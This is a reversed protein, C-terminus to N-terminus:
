HPWRGGGAGSKRSASFRVPNEWMLKRMRDEGLGTWELALDASGPFRSEPHPYDTSFTLIHDGLDETVMRVM